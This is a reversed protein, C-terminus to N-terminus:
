VKGQFDLQLLSIPGSFKVNTFNYEEIRILISVDASTNDRFEGM